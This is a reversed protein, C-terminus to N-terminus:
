DKEDFLVDEISYLGAPKNVVWSAAALAGQVFIDRTKASHFLELRDVQSAFIVKHDGVVEGQRKSGIDETKIEFGYQNIIRAIEKATGSPSDKKHIHHTEEIAAAYGKLAKSAEKLLRFLVNVGISMNPSFVVAIDKAADKIIALDDQNLGTTGIVATKKFQRLCRINEPLAQPSSFDILCDCDKIQSRDATVKVGEVMKGIQPHNKDELGFIIKLNKDDKALAVIRQGMKGCFGSIGLKIM